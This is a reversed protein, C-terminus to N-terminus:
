PFVAVAAVRSRVAVSNSTSYSRITNCYPNAYSSANIGVNTAITDTNATTHSAANNIDATAASTDYSERSNLHPDHGARWVSAQDGREDKAGSCWLWEFDSFGLLREDDQM